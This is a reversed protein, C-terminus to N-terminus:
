RKRRHVFFCCCSMRVQEGLVQKLQQFKKKKEDIPLDNEEHISSLKEVDTSKLKMQILAHHLLQHKKRACILEVSLKEIYQQSEISQKADQQMQFSGRHIERYENELSIKM